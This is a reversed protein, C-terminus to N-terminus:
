ASEEENRIVVRDGVLDSEFTWPEGQVLANGAAALDAPAPRLVQRLIGGNVIAYGYTAIKRRIDAKLIRTDM